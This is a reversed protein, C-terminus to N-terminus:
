QALLKQITEPRLRVVGEPAEPPTATKLPLLTADLVVRRVAAGEARPVLEVRARVLVHTRPRVWIVARGVRFERLRGEIFRAVAGIDPHEPFAGPLERVLAGLREDDFQLVYSNARAGRISEAKGRKVTRLVEPAFVQQLLRADEDGTLTKGGGGERRDSVQLWRGELTKGLEGYAPMESIRVYGAGDRVVTAGTITQTVGRRALLFQFPFQLSPLSDASRLLTGPGARFHLHHFQGGVRKPDARVDVLFRLDTSAPKQAHALADRVVSRPSRFLDTTLGLLGAGALVIIAVSRILRIRGPFSFRPLRM